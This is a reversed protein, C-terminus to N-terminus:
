KPYDKCIFRANHVDRSRVTKTDSHAAVGVGARVALIVRQLTRGIMMKLAEDNLRMKTTGKIYRKIPAIAVNPLHEFTENDGLILNVQKVHRVLITQKREHLAVSTVKRLIGKLEHQFMIRVISNKKVLDGGIRKGGAAKVIRKISADTIM